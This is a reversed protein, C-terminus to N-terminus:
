AAKGMGLRSDELYDRFSTLSIEFRQFQTKALWRDADYGHENLWQFMPLWDSGVAKEARSGPIQEYRVPRPLVRSIEEAIEEMTLQDGAIDIERGLFKMPKTFAEAAIRGIDAASVMQLTRDPSLPTSLVGKEISPRYWPTAFHEMFWVPRLITYSLGCEKLHEEIEGKSDFNPVGTEKNAGCVSSYVIHGIEKGACADIMGKGHTVEAGPGDSSPTMLFVGDVGDLAKKLSDRKRIDGQVFEVNPDKIGKGRGPDSHLVRVRHGYESLYPVCAGGQLDLGGTILIRKNGAEAM